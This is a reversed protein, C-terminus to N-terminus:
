ESEDATSFCASCLLGATCFCADRTIPVNQTSQEDYQGGCLLQKRFEENQENRFVKQALLDCSSSKLSGSGSNKM